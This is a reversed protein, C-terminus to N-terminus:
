VPWPVPTSRVPPLIWARGPSQAASEMRLSPWGTAHLRSRLPGPPHAELAINVPIREPGRTTYKRSVRRAAEERRVAAAPVPPWSGAGRGNDPMGCHYVPLYHLFSGERCWKMCIAPGTRESNARGLGGGGGKRGPRERGGGQGACASDSDM